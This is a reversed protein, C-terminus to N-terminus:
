VRKRSNGRWHPAIAAGTDVFVSKLVATWFAANAISWVIEITSESAGGHVGGVLFVGIFGPAILWNLPSHSGPPIREYAVSTACMLAAEIIAWPWWHVRTSVPSHM